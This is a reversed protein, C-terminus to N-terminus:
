VNGYAATREMTVMSITSMSSAVKFSKKLSLGETHKLIATELMISTALGSAMAIPMVYHFELTPYYYNLLIITGFDGINCGILCNRTNKAAREWINKESWFMSKYPSNKKTEESHCKNSLLRINSPTSNVLGKRFAVSGDPLAPRLHKIPKFLNYRMIKKESWFMSKYPSNKKAEKSHCKNPLLRVNSSTSNVLGKRFAVRRDPLTPRLHKVSKFLNYRM